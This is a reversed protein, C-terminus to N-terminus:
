CALPAVDRMTLVARLPQNFLKFLVQLRGTTDAPKELIGVFDKLLGRQVLVMEGAKKFLKQVIVGQSDTRQRLLTMVNEPVATPGNSQTGLLRVVGRTYQV